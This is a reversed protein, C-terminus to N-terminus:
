IKSVKPSWSSKEVKSLKKVLKGGAGASAGVKDFEVIIQPTSTSSHTSSSLKLILSTAGDDVINYDVVMQAVSTSSDTSSSTKLMSTLPAPFCISKPADSLCKFILM